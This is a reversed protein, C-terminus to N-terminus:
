ATPDRERESAAGRRGGSRGRGLCALGCATNAGEEDRTRQGVREQNHDHHESVRAAGEGAERTPVATPELGDSEVAVDYRGVSVVVLGRPGEERQEWLEEVGGRRDADGRGVGADREIVDREKDGQDADVAGGRAVHSTSPGARRTARRARGATMRTRSARDTQSRGRRTRRPTRGRRPVVHGPRLIYPPPDRCQASGVADDHHEREDDRDPEDEATDDGHRELDHDRKWSPHLVVRQCPRDASTRRRRPVHCSTVMKLKTDCTLASATTWRM